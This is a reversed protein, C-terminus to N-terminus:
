CGIDLVKKNRVLQSVEEIFITEGNPQAITSNWPYSYQGKMKGLQAYWEISHPRLWDQHTRPDILSKNM